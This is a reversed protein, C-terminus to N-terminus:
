RRRSARAASPPGTAPRSSRRASARRQRLHRAGAPLESLDREVRAAAVEAAQLDDVPRRGRGPQRGGRVLRGVLGGCDNWVPEVGPEEIATGGVGTVFPDNAPSDVQLTESPPVATGDYCDESGTDGSAAFVTQGQAAAQQFVTHLANIFSAGNPEALLLAECKGWSTSVVQAVNDNVIANYANYEGTATNPAEYSIIKAGPAQTAAEQIDIEAELSANAGGGAGGNIRKVKVRNKLGFCAFYQKTDAPRSKGLELLAITKGKGTMGAAFLDPM